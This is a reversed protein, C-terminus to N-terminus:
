AAETAEQAEYAAIAKGQVSAPVNSWWGRFQELDRALQARTPKTDTAGKAPKTKGLFDRVADPTSQPTIKGKQCAEAVAEYSKSEKAKPNKEYRSVAEGLAYSAVKLHPLKDAIKTFHRLGRISLATRKSIGKRFEDCVGVRPASTNWCQKTNQRTRTSPACSRIRMTWCSRSASAAWMRDPPWPM